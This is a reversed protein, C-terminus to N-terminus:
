DREVYTWGQCSFGLPGDAGRSSAPQIDLRPRTRGDFMAHHRGCLILSFATDHRLKPAMKRTKFRRRDALHAWEGPGSCVGVFVMPHYERSLRCEGDREVCAARVAQAQTSEARVKRARTRKLPEPKAIVGGGCVGALLLAAGQDLDRRDAQPRSRLRHLTGDAARPNRPPM